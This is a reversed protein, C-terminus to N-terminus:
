SSKKRKNRLLSIYNYLLSDKLLLLVLFYILIGIFILCISFLISSKFVFNGLYYVIGFMIMGGIVYKWITKLIPFAKIEKRMFIMQTVLIAGEAIVSGIVAGYSYYKPILIFNFTLNVLAGVVISITFQNDKGKPILYQLGFVNSLGIILVLPSFLYILDIVKDYGDGFFWPVVNSATGCLGLMIPIGLFFVFRCSKQINEIVLEEKGEEFLNSNRPSMVTGLATIVGLCLRVLKDAQEYYGNELDAVRITTSVSTEIGNVIETSTSDVTGPVLLGILTKDLVKYISLAITPIFLKLTPVIHRKISLTKIPVKVLM